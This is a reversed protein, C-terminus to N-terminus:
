ESKDVLSSPQTPSRVKRTGRRMTWFRNENPGEEIEGAVFPFNPDGTGALLSKLSAFMVGEAQGKSQTDKASTVKLVCAGLCAIVADEALVASGSTNKSKISSFFIDRQKATSHTVKLRLVLPSSLFNSYNVAVCPCPCLYVCICACCVVRVRM